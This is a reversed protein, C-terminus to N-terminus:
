RLLALQGALPTTGLPGLGLQGLGAQDDVDLSFCRREQLPQPGLAVLIRPLRPSRCRTRRAPAAPPCSPPRDRARDSGPWASGGDAHVAAPVVWAGLRRWGVGERALLSPGHERDEVALAEDVPGGGLDPGGEEVLAGVEGRVRRHVPQQPRRRPARAGLALRAMWRPGHGLEHGISGFRTQDYSAVARRPGARPM